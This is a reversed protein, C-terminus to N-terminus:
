SARAARDIRYNAWSPVELSVAVGDALITQGNSLADGVRDLRALAIGRHGSVSALRGVAFGDAMLDCGGAPLPEKLSVALVRTRATARHQMRSVVEQGVYCGKQFDVGHLLDFCAEHPFTEATGFDKGAEPIALGIRMAHYDDLSANMSLVEGSGILARYGLGQLRPDRYVQFPQGGPVLDGDWFAAVRFRDAAGSVSVKARLKYFNLRKVLDNAFSAACDLYIAAPTKVAFFDFLIKGQPTLLAAFRGAGESLAEVDNTILNQLFASRDDGAVEIVTRDELLAARM